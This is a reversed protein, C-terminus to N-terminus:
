GYNTEGKLNDRHTYLERRHYGTNEPVLVVEPSCKMRWSRVTIRNLRLREALEVESIGESGAAKYIDLFFSRKLHNPMWHFNGRGKRRKDALHDEWQEIVDDIADLEAQM